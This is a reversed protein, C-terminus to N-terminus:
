VKMRMKAQQVNVQKVLRTQPPRKKQQAQQLEPKDRLQEGKSDMVEKSSNELEVQRGEQKPHIAEEVIKLHMSEDKWNVQLARIVKVPQSPSIFTKKIKIKAYPFHGIKLVCWFRELDIFDSMTAAANMNRQKSTSLSAALHSDRTSLSDNIQLTEAQGVMQVMWRATVEDKLAFCIHTDLTGLLSEWKEHYLNKLQSHNQWIVISCVGKKRTTAASDFLEDLRGLEPFEDLLLWIKKKDDKELSKIRSVMRTIILNFMPISAERNDKSSNLFLFAGRLPSVQQQVLQIEQESLAQKQNGLKLGGLAKRIAKREEIDVSLLKKKLSSLLLEDTLMLDPYVPNEEGIVRDALHRIQGLPLDIHRCASFLLSKEIPPIPALLQHFRQLSYTSFCRKLYRISAYSLHSERLAISLLTKDYLRTKKKGILRMIAVIFSEKSSFVIGQLPKLKNLLSEEMQMGKLQAFGEEKLLYKAGMALSLSKQNLTYVIPLIPTKQRIVVCAKRLCTAEAASFKETLQEFESLSYHGLFSNLSRFTQPSLDTKSSISQFIHKKYLETEKLGIAFILRTFFAEKSLYVRGKERDHKALVELDALVHNTLSIRKLRELSKENWWYLVKSDVEVSIIKLLLTEYQRSVEEGIMSVLSEVFAERSHWKQFPLLSLKSLFNQPFNMKKLHQIAPEDWQFRKNRALQLTKQNLLFHPSPNILAEYKALIEKIEELDEKANLLKTRLHRLTSWQSVPLTQLAKTLGEYSTYQVGTLSDIVQIVEEGVAKERLLYNLIFYREQPSFYGKQFADFQLRFNKYAITKNIPDIHLAGIAFPSNFLRSLLCNEKQSIAEVFSELSAFERRAFPKLKKKLRPLHFPKSEKYVKERLWKKRYAVRLSEDVKKFALNIRKVEAKSLQFSPKFVSPDLHYLASKRLNEIHKLHISYDESTIQNLYDSVSWEGPQAIFDARFKNLATQMSGIVSESMDGSGLYGEIKHSLDPYKAVGALLARPANGFKDIFRRIDTNDAERGEEEAMRRITEFVVVLCDRASNTWIEASQPDKPILSHAALRFDENNKFDKFFNWSLTRGDFFNLLLDKGPRFHKQVEDAWSLVVGNEKQRLKLFLGDVLVSKGRGPLGWIGMSETHFRDWWALKESIKLEGILPIGEEARFYKKAKKILETESIIQGGKVFRTDAGKILSLALLPIQIFVVAGLGYIVIWKLVPLFQYIRAFNRYPRFPTGRLKASLSQEVSVKGWEIVDHFFIPSHHALYDFNKICYLGIGSILAVMSFLFAYRLYLDIYGHVTNLFRM